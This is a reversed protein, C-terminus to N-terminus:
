AATDANGPGVQAVQAIPIEAARLSVGTGINDSDALMDTVGAFFIGTGGGATACVLWVKVNSVGDPIVFSGSGSCSGHRSSDTTLVTSGSSNAVVFFDDPYTPTEEDFAVVAYLRLDVTSAPDDDNSVASANWSVEVLNGPTVADLEVQLPILAEDSIRPLVQFTGNTITFGFGTLIEDYGVKM